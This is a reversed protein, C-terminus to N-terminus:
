VPAMIYDFCPVIKWGSFKVLWLTYTIDSVETEKLPLVFPRFKNKKRKCEVLKSFVSAICAYPVKLIDGKQNIYFLRWFQHSYKGFVM